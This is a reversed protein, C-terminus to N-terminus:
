QKDFVEVNDVKLGKTDEGKETLTMTKGSKSVIARGTDIVKGEVKLTFDLAHDSVIKVAVTGGPLDIKHDVGDWAVTSDQSIPQGEADVGTATRKFESGVAEFKVTLEKAATGPSFKSKAINLKWTGVFPSDAAFLATSFVCITTLCKWGQM